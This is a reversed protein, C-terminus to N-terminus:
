PLTKILHEIAQTSYILSQFLGPRQDLLTLMRHQIEEVLARGSSSLLLITKRKDDGHIHRELFGTNSLKKLIYSPNLGPYFHHLMVHSIYTYSDNKGQNYLHLLLTSQDISVDRIKSSCTRMIERLDHYLENYKLLFTCYVELTEQAPAIYEHEILM